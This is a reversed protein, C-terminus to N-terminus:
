GKYLLLRCLEVHSLPDVLEHVLDLVDLYEEVGLVLLIRLFQFYQLVSELSLLVAMFFLSLVVLVCLVLEDLLLAEVRLVVFLLLGALVLDLEDLDRVRLGHLAM